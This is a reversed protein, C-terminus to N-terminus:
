PAAAALADSWNGQTVSNDWWHTAPVAVGTKLGTARVVVRVGDVVFSLYPNGYIPHLVGRNQIEGYDTGDAARARSSIRATIRDSVSFADVTVSAALYGTDVPAAEEAEDRLLVAAAEFRDQARDRLAQKLDAFDAM